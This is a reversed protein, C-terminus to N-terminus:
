KAGPEAAAAPQAAEAAAPEPFAYVVVTLVAQDPDDTIVSVHADLVSLLPPGDYTVTVDYESGISIAKFSTKILPSSSQVDKVEFQKGPKGRVAVHQTRTEASATPALRLTVREPIAELDGRVNAYLQIPVEPAKPHSTKLLITVGSRGIAVDKAVLVTVAYKSAGSAVTGAKVKPVASGDGPVAVVKVTYNPDNSEAAIIDFKVGDPSSATLEIPAIGGREGDFAIIDQPQVDVAVVVDLVLELVSQANEPDNTDITVSKTIDGKFAKTDLSANVHGVGGPAIIKDFDVVTCGCGPRASVTLPASGTNRLEFSHQLVTGREVRGGNFVRVPIELKPRSGSVPPQAAEATPQRSPSNAPQHPQDSPPPLQAPRRLTSPEASAASALGIVLCLSACAFPKM